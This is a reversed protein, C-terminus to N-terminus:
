VFSAPASRGETFIPPPERRLGRFLIEAVARRRAVEQRGSAPPCKLVAGAGADELRRWCRLLRYSPVVPGGSAGLGPSTGLDALSASAGEAGKKRTYDKM